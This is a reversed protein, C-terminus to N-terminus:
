QTVQYTIKITQNGSETKYKKLYNYYPCFLKHNHHNFTNMYPPNPGNCESTVTPPTALANPTRKTLFINCKNDKISQQFTKM